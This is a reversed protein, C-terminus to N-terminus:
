STATGTGKCPAVEREISPSVLRRGGSRARSRLTGRPRLTRFPPGPQSFEGMQRGRVRTGHRQALFASSRAPSGRISPVHDCWPSSRRSNWACATTATRFGHAGMATKIGREDSKSSPSRNTSRGTRRKPRPWRPPRAPSGRRVLGHLVPSWPVGPSDEGMERPPSQIDMNMSLPPKSKYPRM